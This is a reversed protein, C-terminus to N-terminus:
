VSPVEHITIFGMYLGNIWKENKEIKFSFILKLYRQVSPVGHIAIFVCFKFSFFILEGKLYIDNM